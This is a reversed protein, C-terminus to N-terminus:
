IQTAWLYSDLSPSEKSNHVLYSFDFTHSKLARSKLKYFYAKFFALRLLFFKGYLCLETFSISKLVCYAVPFLQHDTQM